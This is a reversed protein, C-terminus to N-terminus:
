VILSNFYKFLGNKFKIGLSCNIDTYVYNINPNDKVVDMVNDVSEIEPLETGHIPISTCQSYQENNDCKIELLDSMKKQLAFKGKLRM